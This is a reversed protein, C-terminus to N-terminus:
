RLWHSLDRKILAQLKLIDERYLDVLEKRVAAPLEPKALNRNQLTVVLRQRLKVPILPKLLSKVPHPKSLFAHLVKNRPVGSVNFRLSVDPKFDDDVGLFRFIDCLLEMPKEKFDEYLYVRIQELDFLEYYRKLQIFYFGVAKYHWAWEWHERIRREEEILARRFDTHPERGDRVFHLFHSYAREVPNRLIVILKANSVYRRIRRPADPSYLYLPSAEGIALANEAGEFLAQYAEIDTISFRNIAEDDGPGRFNPKQGELAFFNPEKVPPMFIQPHQKLYHYLATTGAKAAGIILFNPMRGM